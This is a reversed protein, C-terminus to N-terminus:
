TLRGFDLTYTAGAGGRPSGVAVGVGADRVGPNLINARHPPSHMWQDLIRAPTAGTGSGYAINEALFWSARAVLYHVARARGTLDDGSPGVHDFYAQAVMDQSHRIAAARLKKDSHLARLGHKRRERNILCITAKRIKGANGAKPVAHANACGAAAAPSAAVAVAVLLPAVVSSARILGMGVLGM